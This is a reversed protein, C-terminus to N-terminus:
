FKCNQCIHKTLFPFFWACVCLTILLLIVLIASFLFRTSYNGFKNCEDKMDELIEEYEVDDGLQDATIAKMSSACILWDFDM